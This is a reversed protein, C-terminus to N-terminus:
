SRLLLTERKFRGTRERPEVVEAYDVLQVLDVTSEGGRSIVLLRLQRLALLQDVLDGPQNDGSWPADEKVGESWRSKFQDRESGCRSTKRVVRGGVVVLETAM